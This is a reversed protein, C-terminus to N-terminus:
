AITDFASSSMNHILAHLIVPYERIYTCFTDSSWRGFAQIVDDPIGTLALVTAGGARLSHGAIDAGLISQLCSVFWSYSPVCGHVDLWPEPHLPYRLDHSALYDCFHPLPSIVAKSWQWIIVKNGHYLQDGKHYPLHFSFQTRQVQVTHWMTTKKSSQKAPNSPCM